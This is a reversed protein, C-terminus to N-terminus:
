RQLCVLLLINQISIYIKKQGYLKRKNKYFILVQFTVAENSNM